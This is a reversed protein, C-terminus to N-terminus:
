SGKRGEIELRLRLWAMVLSMLLWMVHIMKMSWTSALIKASFGSNEDIKSDFWYKKWSSAKEGNNIIEWTIWGYKLAVIYRKTFARM